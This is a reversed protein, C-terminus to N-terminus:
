AGGGKLMEYISRPNLVINFDSPAYYKIPPLGEAKRRKGVEKVLGLRKLGSMHLYALPYPLKLEKALAYVSKPGDYLSALMKLRIPNALAKLVKVARQAELGM